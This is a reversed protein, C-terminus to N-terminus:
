GLEGHSQRLTAPVALALTLARTAMMATLALWLLPLSQWHQALLGLPLFAGLTAWLTSQRLRSGAALGLFYGDLLYAIAGFGLVPILWPGYRATLALVPEHHTMVGYLTRPWLAFATAMAIGLAVSAVIGWTLLARLRQRQGAGWLQGTFSETTFAIGDIFYSALTLVQLILTNAALVATGWQASWQTFLAFSLVLVFTRVLIDRNLGVMAGWDGWGLAAIGQRIGRWGQGGLWGLGVGLALYQSLATALGAGGSGWGLHYIFGYDLLINGGNAAIALTLVAGGQGRGLFWGLLVFNLLTAPTGWIRGQYFALAAVSLDPEPSLLGLAIAGIPRQLLLILSGLGLAIAGNRVLLGYVGEMDGRGQAQATPGTTGMRLFGFSWYLVNFVVTGLAVGGLPTIDQLHGLFATDVIGALPVMLNSFINAIALRSFALWLGQGAIGDAGTDARPM